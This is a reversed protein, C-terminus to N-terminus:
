NFTNGVKGFRPSGFHYVLDDGGYRGDFAHAQSLDSKIESLEPPLMKTSFLMENIVTFASHARSYESINCRCHNIQFM